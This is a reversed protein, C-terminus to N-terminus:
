KSTVVLNKIEWTDAQSSTSVYKFAVQIKKGAYASLDIDGSNAFTWAGSTPWTPITLVTWTSSGDVRVCFKCDTTLNTQFKAAHDFSVSASKVNTLDITPSVAYAESAYAQTNYGSANLYGKSNYVKWSWVYSLNEDLSVNDLSWGTTLETDTEALGSYITSGTTTSGSDDSSGGGSQGDLVYASTNKVGAGGCYKMIDGYLSVEKGLNGPNDSLNLASRVGPANAETPLQVTICLTYDTCDATPGVVMNTTAADTTSFNTGSLTTSSGGTPMSGVIYGKVWVGSAVATTTSSPNLAIVEACSYPNDQTGAGEGTSPTDPDTPETPEAPTVDPDGDMEYLIPLAYGIEITSYAGYSSKEIYYQIVKSNGVNTITWTGDDNRYPTWLYTNDSADLTSSLQFSNYTGSMYLYRGRSDLIYYQGDTAAAQFIFGNAEDSKIVGNNITVATGYLWGYSAGEDAPKGMYYSTGTNAVLGYAKGSTIATCETFVVPDLGAIGQDGWNYADVSRLGPLGLYKDIYGHLTVLKGLNDPNASLNLDNRVTGSPLQIAVCEEYSGPTPSSALLLNTTSGFPAEFVSTDDNAVYTTETTVVCGVIYGTVWYYTSSDPTSSYYATYYATLGDVNLPSAATGDGGMDPYNVPPIELDDDCSTFGVMSGMALAAVMLYKYLKM